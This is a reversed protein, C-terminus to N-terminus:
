HIILDLNTYIERGTDSQHRTALYLFFIHFPFFITELAARALNKKEKKKAAAASFLRCTQMVEVTKSSLQM